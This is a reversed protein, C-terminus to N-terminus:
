GVCDNCVSIVDVPIEKCWLRPGPKTSGFCGQFIGPKVASRRNQTAGVFTGQKPCRPFLYTWEIACKASRRRDKEQLIVVIMEIVVFRGVLGDCKGWVIEHQLSGAGRL